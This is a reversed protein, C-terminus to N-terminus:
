KKVPKNKKLWLTDGVKLVSGFWLRNKKLLATSKMGLSQAISYFSDNKKVQYYDKEGVSKKNELFILQGEYFEDDKGIENIKELQAVKMDFDLAIGAKTQGKKIKIARLGNVYIVVGTGSTNVSNSNDEIEVETVDSNDNLNPKYNPDNAQKDYEYLKYKEILNILLNPYDPNTAYGAEKLGKAWGKYDLIDLLFLGKYRERITLFDGHDKYSDLVSKYKRFCENPADDDMYYTGGEWGKHCKIGFHNNANTALESNGNGSELLGQSLTISAPIKKEKMSQIAADKYKEIYQEATIKQAFLNSSLILLLFACNKM